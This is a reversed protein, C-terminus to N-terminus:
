ILFLPLLKPVDDYLLISEKVVVAARNLLLEALSAEASSFARLLQTKDRAYITADVFSHGTRM